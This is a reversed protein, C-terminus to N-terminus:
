GASQLAKRWGPPSSGGTGGSRCALAEQELAQLRQWAGLEDLMLLLADRLQAASAEPGLSACLKLLPGAGRQRLAEVQERLQHGEEPFPPFDWREKAWDWFRVGHALCYNDM